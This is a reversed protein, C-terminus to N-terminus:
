TLCWFAKSTCSFLVGPIIFCVLTKSRERSPLLLLINRTHHRGYFCCVGCFMPLLWTWLYTWLLIDRSSTSLRLHPTWRTVVWHPGMRLFCFSLHHLQILLLHLLLTLIPSPTLSLISLWWLPISVKSCSTVVGFWIQVRCREERSWVLM